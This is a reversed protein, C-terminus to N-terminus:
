GTSQKGLDVWLLGRLFGASLYGPCSLMQLTLWDVCLLCQHLVWGRISSSESDHSFLIKPTPRQVHTWKEGYQWSKQNFCRERRCCKGRSNNAKPCHETYLWAQAWYCCALSLPINYVRVWSCLFSRLLMPCFYPHPDSPVSAAPSLPCASPCFGWSLLMTLEPLARLCRQVGLHVRLNLNNLTTM